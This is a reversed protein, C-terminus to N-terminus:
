SNEVTEVEVTPETEDLLEEDDAGMEADPETDDAVASKEASKETKTKQTRKKPPPPLNAEVAITPGDPTVDLDKAGVENLRMSIVKSIGKEQQTVGYVLDSAAITHQNHTIILFQSHVLFEKLALVFRGINSDDLAADLEDLLCFPSPKIKFIAFLLSVATM